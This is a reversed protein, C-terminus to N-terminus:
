RNTRFVVDWFPSSVGFYGATNKHHHLHHHKWFWRLANNPPRFAHICYHALLYTAYGWIFGAFFPYGLPGLLFLFTLFFSTSIALSLLPPMALRQKDRPFEHHVGHVVYQFSDHGHIHFVWRHMAYEVFTFVFWGSVVLAAVGLADFTQLYITFILAALGLGYFLVLPIAIHTRTIAELLPNKFLQKSGNKPRLAQTISMIKSLLTTLLNVLIGFDFIKIDQLFIIQTVSVYVCTSLTYDLPSAFFQFVLNDL